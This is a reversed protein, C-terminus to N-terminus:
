KNEMLGLRGFLLGQTLRCHLSTRDLCNAVISDLACKERDTLFAWLTGADVPDSFRELGEKDERWEIVTHEALSGLAHVPVTLGTLGRPIKALPLRTAARRVDYNRQLILSRNSLSTDSALPSRSGSSKSPQPPANGAHNM